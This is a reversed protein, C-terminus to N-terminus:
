VYITDLTYKFDNFYCNYFSYHGYRGEVCLKAMLSGPKYYIGAHVVGSNHGTQHYALESEKELLGFKLKPHRNILEQATALGVIGGGVIVIDYTGSTFDSVRDPFSSTSYPLCGLSKSNPVLKYRSISYSSTPSRTPNCITCPTNADTWLRRCSSDNSLQKSRKSILSSCSIRQLNNHSTAFIGLLQKKFLAM